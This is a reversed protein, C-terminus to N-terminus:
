FTKNGERELFNCTVIVKFFYCFFFNVTIMAKFKGVETM